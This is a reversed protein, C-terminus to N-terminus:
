KLKLNKNARSHKTLYIVGLVLGVLGGLYSFNHVTAVIVFNKIDMVNDPVYKKANIPNISYKGFFFGVVGVLTAIFMALILANFSVRFKREKSTSFFSILGLVFGLIAGVWWTAVIGVVIVRIRPFQPVIELLDSHSVNEFHHWLGFQIFKFKTYYEPSITYTIQDHLIGYISAIAAGILAQTVIHFIFKSKM